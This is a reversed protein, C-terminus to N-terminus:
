KVPESLLRWLNICFLLVAGKWEATQRDSIVSRYIPSLGKKLYTHIIFVQM